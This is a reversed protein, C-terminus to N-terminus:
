HSRQSADEVCARRDKGHVEVLLPVGGGRLVIKDARPSKGGRHHHEDSERPDRDDLIGLSEVAVQLGYLTIQSRGDEHHKEQAHKELAHIRLAGKPGHDYAEHKADEAHEHVRRHGEAQAPQLVSIWMAREQPDDVVDIKLVEADQDREDRRNDHDDDAIHSRLWVVGGQLVERKGGLRLFIDGGGAGTPVPTFDASGSEHEEADEAGIQIEPTLRIGAQGARMAKTSVVTNEAPSGQHGFKRCLCGSFSCGLFADRVLHNVIHYKANASTTSYESALHPRSCTM